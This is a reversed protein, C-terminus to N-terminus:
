PGLRELDHELQERIVRSVTPVVGQWREWTYLSKILRDDKCAVDVPVSLLLWREPRSYDSGAYIVERDVSEGLGIIPNNQIREDLPIVELFDAERQFVEIRYRTDSFMRREAESQQDLLRQTETMERLASVRIKLGLTGMAKNMGAEILAKNEPSDECSLLADLAKTVVPLSKASGANLSDLVEINARIEARYREIALLYDERAERAENWISVQMGIFVGFVLIVLEIGIAAWNQQKMNENLRRLM